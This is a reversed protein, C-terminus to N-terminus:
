ATPDVAAARKDLTEAVRQMYRRADSAMRAQVLSAGLSPSEEESSYTFVATGGEEVVMYSSFSNRKPFVTRAKAWRGKAEAVVEIISTQGNAEIFCQQEGVGSPTGPVTFARVAFGLEVASEAPRILAWVDEAPYPLRVNEEVRVLTTRSRNNTGGSGDERHRLYYLQVLLLSLAICGIIAAALAEGRSMLFVGLGGLGVVALSQLVVGVIRALKGM